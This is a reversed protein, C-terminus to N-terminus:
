THAIVTILKACEQKLLNETNQGAPKDKECLLVELGAGALTRAIGVGMAGGGVILNDIKDTM